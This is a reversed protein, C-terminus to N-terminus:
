ILTIQYAIAFRPVSGHLALETSKFPNLYKYFSIYMLKKWTEPAPNITICDFGKNILNSLNEVGRQSVEQPPPSLCILLPNMKLKNKVFIAQRTSDKGGSVGIICDYGSDNNKRGFDVIQDLEKKRHEWNIESLSNSNLCAPCIGERFKTNPRTDPQLCSKCYLM